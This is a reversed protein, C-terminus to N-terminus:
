HGSYQNPTSGYAYPAGSPAAVTTFERGGSPPTYPNFGGTHPDHPAPTGSTSYMNTHPPDYPAPTGTSGSYMSMHAATQPDMMPAGPPPTSLAASDHAPTHPDYLASADYPAPTGAASYMSMPPLTGAPTYPVFGMGTASPPPLGGSQYYAALPGYFAKRKSQRRCYVILGVILSVLPLVGCIIQFITLLCRYALRNHRVAIAAIAGTSLGVHFDYM